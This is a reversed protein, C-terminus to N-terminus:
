ARTADGGFALVSVVGANKQVNRLVIARSDIEIDLLRLAHPINGVRIASAIEVDEVVQGAVIGRAVDLGRVFGQRYAIRASAAGVAVIVIFAAAAVTLKAIM